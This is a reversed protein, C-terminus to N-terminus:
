KQVSGRRQRSNATSTTEPALDRHLQVDVVAERPQSTSKWATRNLGLDGLAIGGPFGNWLWNTFRPNQRSTNRGSTLNRDILSVGLAIHNCTPQADSHAHPGSLKGWGNGVMTTTAKSAVVVDITPYRSNFVLMYNYDDMNTSLQQDTKFRCFGGLM